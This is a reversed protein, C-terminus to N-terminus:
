LQRKKKRKGVAIALFIGLFALFGSFSAKEEWWEGVFYIASDDLSFIPSHCLFGAPFDSTVNQYETGDPNMMYIHYQGEEGIASVSILIKDGKHSWKSLGQTYGTTTLAREQSGDVDIRYIDYNGHRTADDVLRSFVLVEGDLRIRPDYDGFPLVANGWEGARSSNTIQHAGTGDDNMLWIQSNRTFAITDGVWHIDGDHYGSDYLKKVNGGDKDMVYIDMTEDRWSLFALKKGDPSWSPYTDIVDNSTLRQYQSGDVKVTCIEEYEFGEGGFEQFFAFTDGASNLQLGSMKQPTSYLLTVKETTLDFAYIGFREEYPIRIRAPTEQSYQVVLCFLVTVGIFVSLRKVKVM